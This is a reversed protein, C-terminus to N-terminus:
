AKYYFSSTFYIVVLKIFCSSYCYVRNTVCRVYHQLRIVGNKCETNLELVDRETTMEYGKSCAIAINLAM